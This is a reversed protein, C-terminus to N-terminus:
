FSDQKVKYCSDLPVVDNNTDNLCNYCLCNKSVTNNLLDRRLRMILESHWADKLSQENLDAIILESNSDVCCATLWGEATVVLQRFPQICTMYKQASQKYGVGQRTEKNKNVISDKIEEYVKGGMNVLDKIYFKDIYANLLSELKEAEGLNQSNAVFSVFVGVDLAMAKRLKDTSIINKITKDFDDRGHIAKYSARTGANVSFKISNLGNKFLIMMRDKNAIAGNTSIYIYEYGKEKAFLTCQELIPSMFPESIGYFGIERVGIDYAQRMINSAQEFSMFIPSKHFKGYVCFRCRQNCTNSLSLLMNKPFIPKESFDVPRDIKLEKTTQPPPPSLFSNDKSQKNM